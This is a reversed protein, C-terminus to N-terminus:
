LTYWIRSALFPLEIGILSYLMKPSFVAAAITMIDAVEDLIPVIM